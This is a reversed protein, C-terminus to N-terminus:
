REELHAYWAREDKLYVGFAKEVAEISRMRSARVIADFEDGYGWDIFERLGWMPLDAVKYIKGEIQFNDSAYRRRMEAYAAVSNTEIRQRLDLLARDTLVKRAAAKAELKAIHTENM